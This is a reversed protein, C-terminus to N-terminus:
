CESAHNTEEALFGSISFLEIVGEVHQWATELGVHFAETVLHAVDQVRRGECNRWIFFATENLQCLLKIDPHFLLGERDIAYDLVGCQRRLVVDSSARIPPRGVFKLPDREVLPHLSNIAGSTATQAANEGVPPNFISPV